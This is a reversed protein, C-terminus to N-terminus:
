GPGADEIMAKSTRSVWVACPARKLVYEVTRGLLGMGFRRRRHAEMFILDATHDIASEVIAPGAERAQLLETALECGIEAAVEEARDLIADAEDMGPLDASDIPLAMPVELVYVATIKAKSGKAVQAAAVLVADDRETGTYPVLIHKISIKRESM